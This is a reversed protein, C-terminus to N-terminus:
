HNGHAAARRDFVQQAIRAAAPARSVIGSGGIGRLGHFLEAVAIQLEAIAVEAALLREGQTAKTPGDTLTGAEM